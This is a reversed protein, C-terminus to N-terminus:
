PDAKQPNPQAPKAALLWADVWRRRTWWHGNASTKGARLAGRSIARYITSPHVRAYAAAEPGSLWDSGADPTV